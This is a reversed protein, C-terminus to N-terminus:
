LAAIYNNVTDVMCNSLLSSYNYLYTVKYVDTNHMNSQMKVIRVIRVSYLHVYAGQAGCCCVFGGLLFCALICSISAINERSITM